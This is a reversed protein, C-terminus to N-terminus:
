AGHSQDAVVGALPRGRPDQEVRLDSRGSRRDSLQEGGALLDPRGAPPDREVAHPQQRGHGIGLLDDAQAQVVAVVGRLGAALDGLV